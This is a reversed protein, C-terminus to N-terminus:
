PFIDLAKSFAIEFAKEDIDVPVSNIELYELLNSTRLNGVLKNEAMPCGGLGNIVTDFRRCGNTYAANIKRYWHRITTHLHFGFEIDPYAPVLASFLNGITKKISIGITDSLPIIRVGMNYLADVWKTVIDVNWEDGYPNGFGMSIYVVLEKNNKDCINLLEQVTAGSKEITSNINRKLFTPSISFPYGLYTIESFKAADEGGRKNAVIALLKSKTNSLDLKKLVEVTDRLQPIAKPSVFSGFDITDFGVKLLANIYDAKAETPIFPMLGQMADRPSEIIKITEM